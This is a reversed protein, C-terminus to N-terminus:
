SFSHMLLKKKEHAEKTDELFKNWSSKRWPTRASKKHLPFIVTHSNLM